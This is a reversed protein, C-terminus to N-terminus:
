RIKATIIVNSAFLNFNLSNILVYNFRKPCSESCCSELCEVISNPNPDVFFALSYREQGTLMVRHLASKFMGNTWREIMDGINVFFAGRLPLVDEWIQPEKFQEKCVQLGLVGDTVLLTIMGYDSHAKVGFREEKSHGLEGPYRLFRIYANMAGIKEFYDEDLNLALSILSILRSGASLAKSIYAEMTPRWSPLLEESPWQIPSTQEPNGLYFSEKLDGPYPDLNETCLPTYSMHGENLLKMKHDLPLSFFQKSQKLVRAVLEEEVGHNVIYFCGCETCAQRILNATSFAPASLDIVLLEAAM